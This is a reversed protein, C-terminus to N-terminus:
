ILCSRTFWSYIIFTARIRGVTLDYGIKILLRSSMAEVDPSTQTSSTKKFVVMFLGMYACFEFRVLYRSAILSIYLFISSHCNSSSSSEGTLVKYLFCFQKKVNHHTTNCACVRSVATKAGCAGQM